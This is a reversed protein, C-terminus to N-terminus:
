RLNESQKTLYQENLAIAEELPELTVEKYQYRDEPAYTCFTVGTHDIKATSINPHYFLDYNKDSIYIVIGTNQYTFPYPKLYPKLKEESNIENALIEICEFLMERAADRDISRMIRFELSIEEFKGRMGTGIPFIDYKSQIKKIARDLVEGVLYDPEPIELKSSNQFLFDFFSSSPRKTFSMLVILITVTYIIHKKKM